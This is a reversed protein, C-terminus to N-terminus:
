RAMSPSPCARAGVPRAPSGTCPAATSRAPQVREISCTGTRRVAGNRGTPRTLNSRREISSRRRGRRHVLRRRSARWRRRVNQRTPQAQIWRNATRRVERSPVAPRWRCRRARDTSGASAKEISDGVVVLSGVGAVLSGGIVLIVGIVRNISEAASKMEEYSEVSTGNRDSTIQCADGPSM